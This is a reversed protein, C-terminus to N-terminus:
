NAAMASDSSDAAEVPISPVVAVPVDVAIPVPSTAQEVPELVFRRARAPVSEIVAQFSRSEGPGLPSTRFRDPASAWARAIESPSGERLISEAIPVGLPVETDPLREGEVDMLAVQLRAPWVVERGSNLAIGDVVFVPVGRTTELWRAGTTEASFAGVALVQTSPTSRQWEPALSWYGVVCVTAITVCWGLLNGAKKLGAVVVAGRRREVDFDSADLGDAFPSSADSASAEGASPSFAQVLSAMSTKASDFDADPALDWSEPDGLDDTVGSSRYLGADADDTLDATPSADTDVGLAEIEETLASFDDVAGFGSDDNGAEIGVDEVEIEEEEIADIETASSEVEIVPEHDDELGIAPASEDGALDLSDESMPVVDPADARNLAGEDEIAAAEDELASEDFGESFDTGEGFDTAPEEDGELRVEESFQWEEEDDPEPEPPNAQSAISGDLGALDTSATPTGVNEDGAAEEAIAHVVDTASASPNPLFFAHKCRSCRVRAGSEPIRSEDLQFSTSCEGCTVIL